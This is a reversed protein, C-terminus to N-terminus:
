DRMGFKIEKLFEMPKLQVKLVNKKKKQFVKKTDSCEPRM